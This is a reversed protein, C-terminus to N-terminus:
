TIAPGRSLVRIRQLARSWVIAASVVNRPWKMTFEFAKDSCMALLFAKVYTWLVLQMAEWYDECSRAKTTSQVFGCFSSVSAVFLYQIINLSLPVWSAYRMHIELAIEKQADSLFVISGVCSGTFYWVLTYSAYVYQKVAQDDGSRASLSQDETVCVMYILMFEFLPCRDLLFSIAEFSRTLVLSRRQHSRVTHIKGQCTDCSPDRSSHLSAIYNAVCAEHVYQYSGKCDCPNIMPLERGHCYFCKDDHM